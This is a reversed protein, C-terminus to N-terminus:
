PRGSGYLLMSPMRRAAHQTRWRPVTAADRRGIEAGLEAVMAHAGSIMSCFTLMTFPATIALGRRRSEM